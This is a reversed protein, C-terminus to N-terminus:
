TKRVLWDVANIVIRQMTRHRAVEETHGPTVVCVRGQGVEHVWVAPSVGHETSEAEALVMTDDRDVAVFYQEDVITFSDIDATIPHDTVLPTVTINPHDKPHSTFHGRVVSRLPGVPPYGALASHLVLFGGGSEVFEAIREEGKPTLWRDKSNKPDLQGMAGLVLLGYSGLDGTDGDTPADSVTLSYSSSRQLPELLTTMTKAPHYYDNVIIKASTMASETYLFGCQSPLLLVWRSLSFISCVRRLRQRIM